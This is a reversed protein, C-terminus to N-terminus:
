EIPRDDDKKLTFRDRPETARALPSDEEETDLALSFFDDEKRSLTLDEEELIRTLNERSRASTEIRIGATELIAVAAAQTNPRTLSSQEELLSALSQTILRVLDSRNTVPIGRALFWNACLALDRLDIRTNLSFLNNPM